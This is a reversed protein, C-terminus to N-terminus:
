KSSQVIKHQYKLIVYGKLFLTYLMWVIIAPIPLRLWLQLKSQPLLKWGLVKLGNWYCRFWLAGLYFRFYFAPNSRNKQNWALLTLVWNQIAQVTEVSCSDEIQATCLWYHLTAEQDSMAIGRKTWEEQYLKELSAQQTIKRKKSENNAHKRYFLLPEQLNATKHQEMIDLWLKYDEIVPYDASYGKLQVFVKRRIMVTPHAFPANFLKKINLKEHKEPPMWYRVIKNNAFAIMGTGLLYCTPHKQLYAVQKAIRTPFAIDDADMRAIYEGKALKLGENLSAVVGKNQPHQILKVNENELYSRIIDMSGDTSCDDIIIIELNPYTQQVISQLAASLYTAANYVPLLVSVLPLHSSIM